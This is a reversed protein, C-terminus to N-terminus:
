INKKIKTGLHAMREQIFNKSNNNLKMENQHGLSQILSDKNIEHIVFGNSLIMEKTIKKPFNNELLEIYNDIDKIKNNNKKDTNRTENKSNESKNSIIKNKKLISSQQIRNHNNLKPNNFLVQQKVKNSSNNKSKKEKHVPINLNDTFLMFKKLDDTRRNITSNSNQELIIRNNREKYELNNSNSNNYKMEQNKIPKNFFTQYQQHQDRKSTPMTSGINQQISLMATSTINSPIKSQINTPYNSINEKINYKENNIYNDNIDYENQIINDNINNIEEKKPKEILNEKIKNYNNNNNNIFDNKNNIGIPIIRQIKQYNENLESPINVTKSSYKNEKYHYYNETLRAFEDNDNRHNKLQSNLYNHYKNRVDNVKDQDYKVYGYFFDNKDDKIVPKYKTDTVLPKVNSKKATQPRSKVKINYKINYPENYDTYYSKNNYQTTINNNYNTNLHSNKDNKNLLRSVIKQSNEDIKPTKRIEGYEKEYRERKIMDFKQQSKKKKDDWYNTINRKNSYTVNVYKRVPTKPKEPLVIKNQFKSNIPKPYVQASSPRNFTYKKM